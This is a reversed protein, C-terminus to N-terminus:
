KRRGGTLQLGRSEQPQHCVADHANALAMEVESINYRYTRHGIKIPTIGLTTVRSALGRTPVGLAGALEQPTLYKTM